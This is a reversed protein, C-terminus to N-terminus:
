PYCMKKFEAVSMYRLDDRHVDAYSCTNEEIESSTLLRKPFYLKIEEKPLSLDPYDVDGPMARPFDPLVGKMLRNQFVMSDMESIYQLAMNRLQLKLHSIEDKSEEVKHLKDLEYSQAEQIDADTMREISGDLRNLFIIAPGNQSEIDSVDLCNTYQRISHGSM